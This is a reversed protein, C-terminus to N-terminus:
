ESRVETIKSLDYIRIFNSNWDFKPSTRRPQAFGTGVTAFSGITGIVSKLYLNALKENQLPYDYPQFSVGTMYLNSVTSRLM